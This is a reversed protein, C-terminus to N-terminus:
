ETRLADVPSLKRVRRGPGWAAIAAGVALTASVAVLTLPDTREVGWLLSEVWRTVIWALVLGAVGGLAALGIARRLIQGAIRRDEAGLAKRIGFERTRSAVARATVGYIGLISFATALVAFLIALRARYREEAIEGEILDSMPQLAVVATGPEAQQVRDRIAPLVSGPNAARVMFSGGPQGAQVRPVYFAWQTVERLEEDRQDEAVGIVTTEREGWYTIRRGVASEGPWIYSALSRSIVMRGPADTRDDDPEFGRGDVIRIGAIDFFNASVFRREAIIQGRGFDYGDPVLGNNGRGPTLPLVSTIAVGEVGPLAEVERAIDAFRDRVPPTQGDAAPEAPPIEPLSVDFSALEEIAFGADASGLAAVTRALLGGGVLLVTAMAIEAVVVAGQLRSRGAGMPRSRAVQRQREFSQVALGPIVGAAIGAAIAILVAFLLVSVDLTAEDLRPVGVPAILELGRLALGSGLVGVAAGGLGFVVSETVIQRTVRWRSAGLARRVALEGERDFMRGVLLAAVNASAILLLLFAAGALILVPTRIARVVEAQRPLVTVEHPAHQPEVNALMIRGLELAAQEPTVGAALRAVASTRHDGRNQWPAILSWADPVTSFLRTGAPVVGIIRTPRNSIDLTRGIVAADGGFRSRWYEEGLVIVNPNMLPDDSAFLRGLVPNTLLVPGLLDPTTMGVTIREPPGDGTRLTAGSPYSMALGDFVHTGDRWLDELEPYSFSGRAADFGPTSVWQPNTPYVNVLREPEPYPLPRLLVANVVSFMAACAAIGLGFTGIALTATTLNRRLSRLAFRLDQLLTDLM